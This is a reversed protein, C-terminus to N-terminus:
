AAAVDGQMMHMELIELIEKVCFHERGISRGDFSLVEDCVAFVSGYM